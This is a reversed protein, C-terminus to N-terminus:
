HFAAAAPATGPSVTTYQSALKEFRPNGHPSAYIPNVALDDCGFPYAACNGPLIQMAIERKGLALYLQLLDAQALPSIRARRLRDLVALAKPRLVPKLLAQYTQRGADLVQWDIAGSPQVLDFAKVADEGRQMQTYTFALDFAADIDHPPLKKLARAAVVERSWDALDLYDGALSEQAPASDPNLRVAQQFQALGPALPLVYGYDHHAAANSPDLMLAQQYEQKAGAIRDDDFDANGLQVLANINRPDLALAKEAAARAKPLAEKM